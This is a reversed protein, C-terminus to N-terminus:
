IFCINNLTFQINHLSTLQHRMSTKKVQEPWIITELIEGRLAEKSFWRCYLM